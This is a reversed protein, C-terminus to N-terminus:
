FIKWFRQKFKNQKKLGSVSSLAEKKGFSPKKLKINKFKELISSSSKESPSTEKELNPSIINLHNKLQM